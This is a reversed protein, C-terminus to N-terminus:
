HLVERIKEKKSWPIPHQIWTDLFHVERPTWIPGVDKDTDDYFAGFRLKPSQKKADVARMCYTLTKEFAAYESTAYMAELMLNYQRYGFDFVLEEGSVGKVRPEKQFAPDVERLYVQVEDRFAKITTPKSTYQVYQIALVASAFRFIADALEHPKATMTLENSAVKMGFHNLVSSLILQRGPGMHIDTGNLVLGAITEAEDSITAQGSKPDQRVLFEIADGDRGQIPLV